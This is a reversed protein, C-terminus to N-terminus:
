HTSKIHGLSSWYSSFLRVQFHGGTLWHGEHFLHGHGNSKAEVELPGLPLPLQTSLAALVDGMHDWVIVGIGVSKTSKFIAADMNVKYCPFVPLTWRVEEAVSPQYYRFYALHFDYLISWAKMIIDHSFQRPSGLRTKNRNYWMCWSITIILELM